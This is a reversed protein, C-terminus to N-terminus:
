GLYLFSNVIVCLAIAALGLPYESYFTIVRMESTIEPPRSPRNPFSISFVIKVRLRLWVISWVMLGLTVAFLSDVSSKNFM